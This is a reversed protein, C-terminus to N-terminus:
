REGDGIRALVAQLDEVSFQAQCWVSLCIVSIPIPKGASQRSRMIDALLSRLKLRVRNLELVTAADGEAEDCSSLLLKLREM